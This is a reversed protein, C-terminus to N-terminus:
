TKFYRFVKCPTACAKIELISWVYYDLVKNEPSSLPCEEKSAFRPCHDRCWQQTVNATHSTSENQQFTWDGDPYQQYSWPILAARSIEQIYVNKNIKVGSSVFFCFHDRRQFILLGYWWVPSNKPNEQNKKNKNKPIVLYQRLLILFSGTKKTTSHLRLLLFSKMVSSSTAFRAM